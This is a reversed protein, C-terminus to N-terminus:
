LSVAVRESLWWVVEGGTESDDESRVYAWQGPDLDRVAMVDDEEDALRSVYTPNSSLWSKREGASVAICPTSPAVDHTENSTLDKIKM